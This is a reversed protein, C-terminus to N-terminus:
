DEASFGSAEVVPRWREYEAKVMGAFEAVTTPAPEYGFKAFAEAIEPTGLVAVIAANLRAVADPPTKAPVFMGFWEQAEIDHFGSEKLTPAEPLFRSRTPGTTALVRLQGAPVYPLAEGFVNISAPIHGGILDQIAPAGGRFGVHAFEFGAARALMVGVFHPMSGAAPSGYSAQKPNAKAWEVFDPVTKVTAPVAPGVSFAFPFKCVATVPAFDRFADYPLRKYIHPYIALMSAPTLIMASGDSDANKLAELGLRGGAGARNEVIVSSAYSGRIREALLRAITDTSGGPPFGTLIRTVKGAPQALADPVLGSAALGLASATLFDRRSLM